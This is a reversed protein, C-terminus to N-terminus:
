NEFKFEEQYLERYVDKAEQVKEVYAATESFPIKQLTEGDASYRPDALWNNVNGMGANYAALATDWNEGYLDYLRHLYFAGCRINQDPAFIDTDEPLDLRWLVEGFTAPTMQMLGCAGASSQADPQFRSECWIVGCLLDKPVGFEESAAVIYEQYALPYRMRRIPARLVAWLLGLLLAAVLLVVLARGKRKKMNGSANM